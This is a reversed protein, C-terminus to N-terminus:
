SKSPSKLTNILLSGLFMEGQFIPVMRFHFVAGDKIEVDVELERREESALFLVDIVEDFNVIKKRLGLVVADFSPKTAPDIGDFFGWRNSSFVIDRESNYFLVGKNLKSFITKYLEIEELLEDHKRAKEKTIEYLGHNAKIGSTVQSLLKILEESKVFESDNDSGGVGIDEMPPNEKEYILKGVEIMEGYSVSFYAAISRQKELSCKKPDGRYLKNIYAASINVKDSNCIDIQKEGDSIKKRFFSLFYDFNTPM